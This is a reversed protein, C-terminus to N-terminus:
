PNCNYKYDIIDVGEVEDETCLEVASPVAQHLQLRLKVVRCVDVHLHLFAQVLKLFAVM